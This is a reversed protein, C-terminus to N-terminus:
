VPPMGDGPTFLRKETPNMTDQAVSAWHFLRVAFQRAENPKLAFWSITKDFKVIVRGSDATFDMDVDEGRKSRPISIM